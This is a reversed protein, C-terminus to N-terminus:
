PALLAPGNSTGLRTAGAKILALAQEHTKIGGSAKIGLKGGLEQYLMEIDQISAGRAAFGTSTKVFDAGGSLVCQAAKRIQVDSLNATEIIVKLCHTGVAEKVTAIEDVIKSYLGEQMWGQNIVMDIETAGQSVALTAQDRKAETSSYGLPFGVVTCVEVASDKVISKAIVVYTEPVCVAKFNYQLAVECLAKIEQSAATPRLLTHDILRNIEMNIISM